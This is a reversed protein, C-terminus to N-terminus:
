VYLVLPIGIIRAEERKKNNKMVSMNGRKELKVRVLGLKEGINEQCTLPLRKRGDQM